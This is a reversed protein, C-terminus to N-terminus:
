AAAVQEAMARVRPDMLERSPVGTLQSIEDCRKLPAWGRREWLSIAQQTVGLKHGLAAQKSLVVGKGHRKIKVPPAAQVARQMGTLPKDGM